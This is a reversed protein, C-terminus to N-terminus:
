IKSNKNFLKAPSVFIMDSSHGVKERNLDTKLNCRSKTAKLNHVNFTLPKYFKRVNANEKYNRTFLPINFHMHM